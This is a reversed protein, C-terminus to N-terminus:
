LGHVFIVKWLEFHVGKLSPECIMSAIVVIGISISFLLLLLAFLVFDAKPM